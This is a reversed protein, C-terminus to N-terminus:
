KTIFNLISVGAEHQFPEALLQRQGLLLQLRQEPQLQLRQEPLLQLRQELRQRLKSLKDEILSSM